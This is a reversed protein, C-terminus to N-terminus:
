FKIAQKTLNEITVTVKAAPPAGGAGPRAFVQVFYWKGSKSKAAGVGTHTLDKNAINKEHGPSELWTEVMVGAPDEEGEDWGVNEASTSRKYGAEDLRQKTGKGNLVHGNKGSDGFKDAKALARAHAQAIATLKDDTALKALKKKERYANVDKL